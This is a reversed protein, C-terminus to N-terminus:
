AEIVRALVCKAAEAFSALFRADFIETCKKLKRPLLFIILIERRLIYLVTDVPEFM